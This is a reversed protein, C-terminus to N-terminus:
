EETIDAKVMALRTYEAAAQAQLDMVVDSCARRVELLTAPRDLAATLIEPNREIFINGESDVLVAFGTKFSPLEPAVLTEETTTEETMIEM